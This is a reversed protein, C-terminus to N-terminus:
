PVADRALAPLRLRELYSELAAARHASTHAELVRQQAARGLAAAAAPSTHLLLQVIAATNDAVLIENAPQFFECLGPWPDSIIATAAAAAEFLRVSPSYGAEVMAQRTLNLTFRSAAYFAAHQDPALHPDYRLNGPWAQPQPFMSGALHFSMRPLHRAPALLLRQVKSQRDPAFTGMFSLAVPPRPARAASRYASEDCACYLPRVQRAHWSRQLEDLVPGGTFSLYLDLAPIQDARLYACAQRRLLELTIPTDIDYFCVPAPTHGLLDDLLPIAEPFYSGVIVADAARAAALATARIDSWNRYLHLRAQPPRPLDRHRAYWDTDREFFEIQHGRQRLGRLLGRYTTAHGNGWSSTLSLGFFAFLM